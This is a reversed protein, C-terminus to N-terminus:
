ANVHLDAASHFSNSIQRTRSLKLVIHIALSRAGIRLKLLEDFDFGLLLPKLLQHMM